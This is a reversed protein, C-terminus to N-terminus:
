TQDALRESLIEKLEPSWLIKYHGLGDLEILESHALSRQADRSDQIPLIRDSKSHILVVEGANKLQPGMTAVNMDEVLHGTSEELLKILRKVTRDTVGIVQKVSEIRDKFNSPTTVIFWQKLQVQPNNLLGFVSTVSGFSHSIISTPQYKGIMETVLDAYEFMSTAAQTSKGHSPGDFAKIYYGKELLLEILAGFNGAQGEWGHVLFIVPNGKKGWSYSQIDFTRFRIIEQQADALVNEEFDRLKRVQPNSMYKFAMKAATAPALRDLTSFLFRLWFM